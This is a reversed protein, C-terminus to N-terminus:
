PMSSFQIRFDSIKAIEGEKLSLVAKLCEISFLNKHTCDILSEIPGQNLVM